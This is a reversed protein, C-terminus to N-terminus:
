RCQGKHDKFYYYLIKLNKKRHHKAPNALFFTPSFSFGLSALPFAKGADAPAILKGSLGPGDRSEYSRFGGVGLLTAITTGVISILYDDLEANSSKKIAKSNTPGGILMQCVKLRVATVRVLCLPVSTTLFSPLFSFSSQSPLPTEPKACSTM